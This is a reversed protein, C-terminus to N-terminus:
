ALEGKLRLRLAVLERALHLRAKPDTRTSSLHIATRGPEIPQLGLALDAGAFVPGSQTLRASDICIEGGAIRHGLTEADLPVTISRVGLWEDETPAAPESAARALVIGHSVGAGFRNTTITDPPTMDPHAPIHRCVGEGGFQWGHYLCTLRDGRVFGFSLRMGRHPCRDEWLRVRGAEDRWLALMYGHLVVPHASKPHVASLLGIPIGQGFDLNTHTM